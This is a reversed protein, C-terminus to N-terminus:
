VTIKIHMCKSGSKTNKRNLKHLCYFINTSLHLCNTIEKNGEEKPFNSDEIGDVLIEISFYHCVLMFIDEVFIKIQINQAHQCDGTDIKIAILRLQNVRGYVM